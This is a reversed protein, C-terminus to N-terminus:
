GKLDNRAYEIIADLRPKVIFGINQAYEARAEEGEYTHPNYQQDEARFDEDWLESELKELDNIVFKPLLLQGICVSKAIARRAESFELRSLRTGKTPIMKYSCYTENAWLIMVELASLIDQYTEYKKQWLWEKKFKKVAILFGIFAALITTFFSILWNLIEFEPM